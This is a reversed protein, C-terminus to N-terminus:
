MVDKSTQFGLGEAEGFEVEDVRGGIRDRIRDEKGEGGITDAETEVTGRLM